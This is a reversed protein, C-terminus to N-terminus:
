APLLDPQMEIRQIQFGAKRVETVASRIAEELSEAQRHFQIQPVGSMTAITGDDFVAYLIDAEAENPEAALILNFEHIRV